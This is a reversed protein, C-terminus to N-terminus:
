PNLFTLDQASVSYKCNRNKAVTFVGNDDFCTQYWKWTPAITSYANDAKSMDINWGQSALQFLDRDTVVDITSRASNSQANLHVINKPDLNQLLPDVYFPRLHWI